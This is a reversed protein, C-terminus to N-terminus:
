LVSKIINQIKEIQDEEIAGYSLRVHTNKSSFAPIVLLGKDALQVAFKLGTKKPHSLYFYIAGEPLYDVIRFENLKNFLFNRKNKYQELTKKPNKAKLAAIAMLNSIRPAAWCPFQLSEIYRVINECAAIYGIKYGMMSFEKSFTRLVITGEPYYKFPSNFMNEYDFFCYAEDSLLLINNEKAVKAIEEIINKPIVRGTPNNPSNIIIMKTKETINKKMLELNPLFGMSYTEILVSKAGYVGAYVAYPIYFPDFILVEDGPNLFSRFILDLALGSGPTIIINEPFFQSQLDKSLIKSILERLEILGQAPKTYYFENGKLAKEGATKIEPLLGHMTEGLGCDIVEKGKQQLQISKKIIQQIFNMGGPSNAIKKQINSPEIM